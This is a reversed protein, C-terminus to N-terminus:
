ALRHRNQRRCATICSLTIDINFCKFLDMDFFSTCSKMKYKVLKTQNRCFFHWKNVLIIFNSIIFKFNVLPDTYLITTWIITIDCQYFTHTIAFYPHSKDRPNIRRHNVFFIFWNSKFFSTVTHFLQCKKLPKIKFAKGYLCVSDLGSM